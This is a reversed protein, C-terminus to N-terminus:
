WSRNTHSAFVGGTSSALPGAAPRQDDRRHGTAYTATCHASAKPTPRTLREAQAPVARLVPLALVPLHAKIGM